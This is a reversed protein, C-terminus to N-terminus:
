KIRYRNDDQFNITKYEVNSCVTIDLLSAREKFVQNISEITSSVLEEVVGFPYVLILDIDQYIERRLYSGFIYVQFGVPISAKNILSKSHNLRGSREDQPLYNLFEDGDKRIAGMFTKITFLGIKNNICLCKAEETYAGYYNSCIIADVSPDIAM